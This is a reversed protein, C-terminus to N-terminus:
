GSASAFPLTGNGREPDTMRLVKVTPGFAVNTMDQPTILIYQKKDSTNATDIMMKMSIRRNVADMFVDFEDLCRLPCGISDWLSLLLCITSFSKEGGSLSRPDKDRTGQTQLQDDTQVRLQLTGAVHNFLIKGYYGRNSLHYQFVHKCRLAIHRRFEQWRALRVFLSAKLAKNLKSMQKLEKEAKDLNEQAKNVEKAMEEVSAGHHKEREKLAKQVSDLLRKVEELKRPKHVQECYELAKDRWNAYEEQLVKATQEVAEVKKKESQYKDEYYKMNKQANMRAEVADEIQKRKATRSTDFEQIQAKIGNLELQCARQAEDLTVKQQQVAAFQNIINNKEAEAEEKAAELGALGVPMDENAETVLANLRHRAARCRSQVQTEENNLQDITKRLSHYQGKLTNVEASKTSWESEHRAKEEQYHKIDMTSNRGTLLLSTADNLRRINLGGSHVGGEPYVRVNFNDLTWASGGRLRELLQQGEKRTHALVQSEIHMQNILIRTVYPDSIELARLVTLFEQPPEGHRYDFLDKEYILILHNSNGSQVLLKKLADRDRADTVAFATLYGVLQNRLLDGWTRPDRAKVYTGLPGLPVDGHWKMRNINEMVQKLNRGYPVLADKEAQKANEIMRDCNDINNQVAKIADDARQGTERIGDAQVSFDKRQHIIEDIRKEYQSVETRCEEIRRQTEEHKAQSHQAMRRSEDAIQKSLDEIQNNIGTLSANMQKLDNNLDVLQKKRERMRAQIDNKQNDLDKVDGMENVSAEFEKVQDTAVQFAAEAEKLSEEIKPLRRSLKAVENLKNEMEEEKAAVHSWAMEKKLDDAKKKQERAKAAEEYRATVERLRAKLDPLAEKKVSLLKATQNINTLCLDYEESLQTLQTGRLFFKYKDQPVSASLFQRAADQTLVNMPNDVQINMHDCIASLEDKKTSIVKGDKSKIKWSSNGDKGFRRTIVITKGYEKPKYAEEGQNKIHITVEATHQGERIFSKLGTGRGTSTAKGGLAVTIASLVASKGSGNHGIIFNIQPGFIFKLFKHCMFQCMEIYEIIGHDAVTGQVNKKNELQARLKAGWRREFEEDDELQQQESTEEGEEEESNDEDSSEATARGKGKKAAARERKTRTQTQPAEESDDEEDSDVTKARKSSANSVHEEEEAHHRKPM